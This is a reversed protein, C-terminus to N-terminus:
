KHKRFASEIDGIGFELGGADGYCQSVREKWGETLKVLEEECHKWVGLLVTRGVSEETATVRDRDQGNMTGGSGPAATIAASAAAASDIFHKQMIKYLGDILKRLDKITYERTIKRLANKSYTSNTTIEVPSSLTRLLRELGEFYDIIKGFPRRFIIKVYASLNEDYIGRAKKTFGSVSGVEMRATESVFYHMNEILVVHYNLQSKDEEDGGMKAIAKLTEFMANVIKEYAMDVSERVELGLGDVGVAILQDELRHIYQPFHKIFPVVGKRKKSTSKTQEINKLQDNIHRDFVGKLRTHQKGLFGILFQNGKEDAEMMFRELTALVGVIESLLMPDKELAKEVWAKVEMPLFGFILEMAGRLLKITTPSLNNERAAQRRFYHDLAMYDAFTLATDHNLSNIQLFDAMFNSEQYILPIIQDLILAFVESVRMDGDSSSSTSGSKDKDKNRSEMPSRILTGARRMGSPAKPAPSTPNSSFVHEGEEESARKVYGLYISMLAKIQTSHLESAASFHAACLRGYVAEDMEKLYLMLGCYRGLYEEIDQHQIIVPRTGKKAKTLGSTEGLLLKSQATFMITLFDHMRKCFQSNHTRYEQLREMTAAMDTDRGAQLAKYLEAAAQELRSISQSKELSEQTLTILADSDVQVTQLLNEIENLLARQNQTQVQLGRNQSQIYLIDDHCVNLHIKYSSILGDLNDLEALADDMFKMVLNIRDDSELFAHINAKELAMLEDLLRAEIMDAAGRAMKRGIVDDTAWEYGEIMEEVSALTDQASEVEDGAEGDLHGNVGADADSRAGGVILRDLRQQNAPDFYSLRANPDKGRTPGNERTASAKRSRPEPSPGRSRTAPALTNSLPGTRNNTSQQSDKRSRTSSADGDVDYGRSGMSSSPLHLTPVQPPPQVNSPRRPRLAQPPPLSVADSGKRPRGPTSPPAKLPTERSRVSSSLERTSNAPSGARPVPQGNRSPLPSPVRPSTEHVAANTQTTAPQLNRQSRNGANSPTKQYSGESGDPDSIGELHLPAAGGTIQRFLRVLAVLFNSQDTPSETQWKYTRSLTINFTLPAVVQLGRLEALRWTKGVSFSGNNNLKSKHIFGTGNSAQSLLIYRAKRGEAGADEWIKLHSVYNEDLNGTANRRSFVSAIISQKIDAM